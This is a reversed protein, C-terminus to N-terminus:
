CFSFRVSRNKNPSASPALPPRTNTVLSSCQNKSAEISTPPNGRCHSAFSPSLVQLPSLSKTMMMSPFSSISKSEGREASFNEQLSCDDLIEVDLSRQHHVANSNLLPCKSEDANGLSWTKLVRSKMKLRRISRRLSYNKRSVDPSSVETTGERTESGSIVQLRSLDVLCGHRSGDEMEGDIKRFTDHMHESHLISSHRSTEEMSQGVFSSPPLGKQKFSKSSPSDGMKPPLEVCFYTMRPSCACQQIDSQPIMKLSQPSLDAFDTQITTEGDDPVHKTLIVFSYFHSSTRSWKRQLFSEGALSSLFSANYSMADVVVEVNTFPARGGHTDELNSAPSLASPKSSCNMSTTGEVQFKNMTAKLQISHFPKENHRCSVTFCLKSSCYMRRVDIDTLVTVIMERNTWGMELRAYIIVRFVYMDWKSDQIRM